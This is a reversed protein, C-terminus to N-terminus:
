KGGYHPILAQLALNLRYFQIIINLESVVFLHMPNIVVSVAVCSRCCKCESSGKCTRKNGRRPVPVERRNYAQMKRRVDSGTFFGAFM